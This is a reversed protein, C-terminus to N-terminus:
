PRPEFVKGRGHDLCDEIVQCRVRRLVAKSDANGVVNRVPAQIYVLPKGDLTLTNKSAHKEAEARVARDPRVLARDLDDACLRFM